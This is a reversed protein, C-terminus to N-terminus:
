WEYTVKKPSEMSLLGGGSLNNYGTIMVGAETGTATYSGTKKKPNYVGLKVKRGDSFVFYLNTFTTKSGQLVVKKAQFKGTTVPCPTIDFPLKAKSMKANDKKYTGKLTISFYPQYKSNGNVHTVNVNNKCAVTYSSADVLVGDRIIEVKIDAVQKSANKASIKAQNWLHSRGDYQVAGTWIVTYHHGNIDTEATKEGSVPVPPVPQPEPEPEPEKGEGAYEYSSGNKAFPIDALSKWAYNIGTVDAVALVPIKSEDIATETNDTNWVKKGGSMKEVPIYLGDKIEWNSLFTEAASESYDYRLWEKYLRDYVFFLRSAYKGDEGKIYAAIIDYDSNVQYAYQAYYTFSSAAAKDATIGDVSAVAYEVVPLEERAEVLSTDTEESTYVSGDAQVVETEEAEVGESTEAEEAEIEKPIEAEEAEIEEPVEASDLQASEVPTVSFELLDEDAGFVPVASFLMTVAVVAALIKKKM